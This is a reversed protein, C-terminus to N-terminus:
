AAYIRELRELIARRRIWNENHEVANRTLLDVKRHVRAELEEKMAVLDFLTRRAGPIFDVLIDLDSDPMFDPRLVSGFLSVERVSWRQCWEALWSDDCLERPIM